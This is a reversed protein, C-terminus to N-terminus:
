WETDAAWQLIIGYFEEPNEWSLEETNYDGKLTNDWLVCVTETNYVKLIKGVRGNAGVKVPETLWFDFLSCSNTTEDQWKVLIEFM